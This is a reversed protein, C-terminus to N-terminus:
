STSKAYDLWNEQEEISSYRFFAEIMRFEKEQSSMNPHDCFVYRLSTEEPFAKFYYYKLKDSVKVLLPVDDNLFGFLDNEYWATWYNDDKSDVCPYKKIYIELTEHFVSESTNM